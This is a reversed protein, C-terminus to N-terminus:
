NLPSRKSLKYIAYFLWILVAGLTNALLDWWTDSPTLNVLGAQTVVLEFLENAVGLAATLAYIATLDHLLSLRWSLRNRIYFWLFASFMGGGVLHTIFATDRGQIDPSPLYWSIFFLFCATALLIKSNTQKHKHGSHNYASIIKPALFYVAAPVIISILIFFM